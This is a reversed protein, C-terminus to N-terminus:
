SGHPAPGSWWRVLLFLVFTNFFLASLAIRYKLMRHPVLLLACWFALPALLCFLFFISTAMRKEDRLLLRGAAIICYGFVPVPAAYSMRLRLLRTLL